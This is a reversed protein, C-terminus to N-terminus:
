GNCGSVTLKAHTSFVFLYHRLQRVFLKGDGATALVRGNPSFRVSNVSKLHGNLTVVHRLPM